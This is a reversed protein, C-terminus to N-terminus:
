LMFRMTKPSPKNWTQRVIRITSNAVIDKPTGHCPASDSPPTSAIDEVATSDFSSTSRISSSEACPRSTMPTSRNWSKATTGSSIRMGAKAWGGASSNPASPRAAKLAMAARDSIRNKPWRSMRPQNKKTACRREASSNMSLMRSM